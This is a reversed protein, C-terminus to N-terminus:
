KVAKLILGPKLIAALEENTTEIWRVKYGKDLLYLYAWTARTASSCFTGIFGEKPLEKYRNPLEDIPINVTLINFHKFDFRLTDVEEKARVDLFVSGQKELFKEATIKHQATGLFELNMKKLTADM